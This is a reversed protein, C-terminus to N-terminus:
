KLEKVRINRFEIRRGHNQLMFNDVLPKDKTQPLSTQDFDHIVRGNLM